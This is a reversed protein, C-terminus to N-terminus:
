DKKPKERKKEVQIAFDPCHLVCEQCGTCDEPRTILPSGLVDTDFVKEKCFEACIGCDKCWSRYISIDFGPRKIKTEKGVERSREGPGDCSPGTRIWV